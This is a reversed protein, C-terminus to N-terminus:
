DILQLRNLRTSIGSASNDLQTTTVYDTIQQNGIQVNVTIDRGTMPDINPNAAFYRDAEMQLRVSSAALGAAPGAGIGAAINQATLTSQMLDYKATTGSEAVVNPKTPIANKLNNMLLILQNIYDPWDAFPNLAKPLMAIAQALNTTHLQSVILRESLIKAQDANDTLIALQLQLRLKEDETIKGQLAAMVQIRDLDFLTNAKKLKAQDAEKKAAADQLKKQKALFAQYEKNAKKQADAQEYAQKILETNRKWEENKLQRRVEDVGLIYSWGQVVRDLLGGVLPINNLKNILEGVSIAAAATFYGLEEMAKTVGGIGQNGTAAQAAIILGQGVIQKMDEFENKLLGIKGAYTDLYAASAGKFQKNLQATIGAMDGTALYAKNLGINLAALGKTNGAYGKSLADIVTNLDNSTGRSVEIALNLDKMALNANGTALYLQQFAPTLMDDAVGSLKSLNNLGALADPFAMLQGTNRLTNQLKTAALESAEFEKISAKGFQVIKNISFGVGLAVGLNRASKTLRSMSKEAAKAGKDSYQSVIDLRVTM